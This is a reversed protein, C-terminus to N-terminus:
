RSMAHCQRGGEEKEREVTMEVESVLCMLCVTETAGGVETELQRRLM